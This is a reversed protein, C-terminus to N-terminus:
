WYRDLRQSYLELDNGHSIKGWFDEDFNDVYAQWILMNNATTTFGVSGVKLEITRLLKNLETLSQRSLDAKLTILVKQITSRPTTFSM